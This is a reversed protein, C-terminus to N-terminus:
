DRPEEADPPGTTKARRVFADLAREAETLDLEGADVMEKAARKFQESQEAQNFPAKRKPM